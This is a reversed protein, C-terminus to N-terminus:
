DTFYTLSFQALGDNSWETATMQSGGTTANSVWIEFKTSLGSYILLSLKQGSTINLLQEGSTAGAARFQNGTGVAFPLGSVRIAGSLGAVSSTYIIGTVTVQRGIKVYNATNFGAEMTANNNSVDQLQVTWTGEEYDDLTNANSSASQTAPFTIGTGSTTPTAGGVSINGSFTSNGGQTISFRTAGNYLEWSSNASNVNVGVAWTNTTGTNDKTVFSDYAGLSNAGVATKTNVLAATITQNQNFSLTGSSGTQTITGTASLTTFAGTSPTTAGVTGNMAAGTLTKNTLTDTTARGVLTDTAAPLTLTTTGAVATATVTTSGSTTGALVLTGSGLTSTAM